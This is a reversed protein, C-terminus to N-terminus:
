DAIIGIALIRVALIRVTLIRIALQGVALIREALLVEAVRLIRIPFPGEAFIRQALAVIAGELRNAVEGLVRERAVAFLQVVVAQIREAFVVGLIGETFIVSLIREPLLVQAFIIRGLHDAVPHV